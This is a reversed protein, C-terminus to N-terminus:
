KSAERNGPATCGRSTVMGSPAVSAVLSIIPITSRLASVPPWQGGLGLALKGSIRCFRHHFSSRAMVRSSTSSEASMGMARAMRAPVVVTVAHGRAALRDAYTLIARV